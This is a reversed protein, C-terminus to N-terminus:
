PLKESSSLASFLHDLAESFKKLRIPRGQTNCFCHESKGAAKQKGTDPDTIRYDLALRAGRYDAIRVDIVVSDGFRVPSRYTCSVGTVPILLGSQELQRYGWGLQELFDLRAEEMWRIYNSHHVIGM